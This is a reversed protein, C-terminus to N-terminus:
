TKRSFIMKGRHCSFLGKEIKGSDPCVAVALASIGAYQVYQVDSGAIEFFQWRNERFYIWLELRCSRVPCCLRMRTIESSFQQRALGPTFHSRAASRILRVAIMIGGPLIGVIDCFDRPMGLARSPLAHLAITRLILLAQYELLGTPTGIL